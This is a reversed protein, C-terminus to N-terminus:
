AAHRTAAEHRNDRVPAPAPALAPFPATTSPTKTKLISRSILEAALRPQAKKSPRPKRLPRALTNAHLPARTLRLHWLRAGLTDAPRKADSPPAHATIHTEHIM